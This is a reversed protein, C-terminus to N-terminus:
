NDGDYFDDLKKNKRTEEYGINAMDLFVEIAGNLDRYRKTAEAYGDPHTTNVQYRETM